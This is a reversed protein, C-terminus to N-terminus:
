LFEYDMFLGTRIDSELEFYHITTEEEGLEDLLEKSCNGIAESYSSDMRIDYLTNRIQVSVDDLCGALVM